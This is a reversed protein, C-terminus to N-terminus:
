AAYPLPHSDRAPQRAGKVLLWLFLPVEGLMATAAVITEAAPALTPWALVGVSNLGYGLGAVLLLPGFLPPVRGSRYVLPALLLLHLAFFSEWVNQVGARVEMTALVLAPDDPALALATIGAVISVTMLAVMLSRSLAAALSVAHGAHRFLLHLAVIMGVETFAIGIEGLLGLRFVAAHDVLAAVTAAPDGAIHVVSPVWVLSFPGLLLLPMILLGALRASAQTSM